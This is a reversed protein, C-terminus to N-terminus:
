AKEPANTRIRLLAYLPCFGIAGTVLLIGALVWAVIALPGGLVGAVNLAVLAVSAILRVIRDLTSENQPFRV